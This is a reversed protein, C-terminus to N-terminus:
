GRPYGAAIFVAKDRNNEMWPVIAAVIAQGIPDGGAYGGHLLEGFEDFFVTKGIASALFERTQTEVSGVFQGALAEKSTEL